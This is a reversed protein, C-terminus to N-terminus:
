SGYNAVRAYFSCIWQYKGVQVSSTSLGTEISADQVLQKAKESKYDRMGKEFYPVLQEEWKATEM